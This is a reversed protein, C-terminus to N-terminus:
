IQTAMCTGEWLQLSELDEQLQQADRVASIEKYLVIDDAFLRIKSHKINEVVDNIYIIFLIPGLVTGQPVGSVVTVSHSSVNDIVVKQHRDSLFSSIWQYTNGVIGYWQLKSRLRKHPVTDFAKAIDMFIVDTQKGNDYSKALDNIFSVLQTECSRNHRFGHQFEYLLNNSELHKMLYSSIIHELVKSCTSTLSIPRYNKPVCREGKKYVPTVNAIRWDYPVEGTALSKEFILKLIPATVEATEKLLRTSITDPGSAKHINLNQLLTFIGPTTITIDEMLPHPSPGKDPLNEDLENTFVSRFHSNFINAKEKSDTIINGDVKLPQIGNSDKRLKKIFSWFRKPNISSTRDESDTILRSIYADHSQRMQRQIDSKLQLFRSRIEPLHSTKYQHYLKNRKKIQKRIDSTLWPLDCRTRTLKHPIHSRVSHLITDKFKIWLEDVTKTDTSSFDSSHLLNTLDEKISDWDARYYLYIQRPNQKNIKSRMEIDVCVIDHDGLGPLIDITHKVSPHNLFFLDLINQHRTPQNVIQELGHEQMVDILSSHATVHTRNTFLSMSEWNICPANFDGILWIEVDKTTENLKQLSLNLEDISNQDGVHPRYYAGIYLKNRNGIAVQTWLLECNTQLATIEHSNIQKSIAIMVGGYSDPRDKRYINYNWEASIVENNSIDPSLWTETGVIIHPKYTFIFEHFAAKKNM